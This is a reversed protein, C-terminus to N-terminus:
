ARRPDAGDDGSRVRSCASRAVRPGPEMIPGRPCRVHKRNAAGIRSTVGVVAPQVAVVGEREGVVVVGRVHAKARETDEVLIAHLRAAAEARVAMTVHLNDRVHEIARELVAVRHAVARHDSGAVHLAHRRAGANAVALEVRRLGFRHVEELDPDEGLARAKCRAVLLLVEGGVISSASQTGDRATVAAVPADGHMCIDRDMGAQEVLALRRAERQSGAPVRPDVDRAARDRRLALRQVFAIRHRQGVHRLDRDRADIAALDQHEVEGSRAIFHQEIWSDRASRCRRWRTRREDARAVRQRRIAGAVQAVPEGLAEGEHVFFSLGCQRPYGDLPAEDFLQAHRFVGDGVQVGFPVGLLVSGREEKRGSELECAASVSVRAGPAPVEGLRVVYEVVLSSERGDAGAEETQARRVEVTTGGSPAAGSIEPVCAAWPSAKGDWCVTGIPAGRTTMDDNSMGVHLECRAPPLPLAFRDFLRLEDGRDFEEGPKFGFPKLVSTSDVLVDGDVECRAVIGVTQGPLEADYTIPLSIQMEHDSSGRSRPNRIAVAGVQVGADTRPGSAVAETTRIEIPWVIPRPADRDTTTGDGLQGHDNRGWCSVQGAETRACAFRIGTAAEVADDIGAIRQPTTAVGPGHDDSEPDGWWHVHGETDVAITRTFHAAVHRIKGLGQPTTPTNSRATRGDGLQGASNEGACVLEGSAKAGCVHWLGATLAVVDVLPTDVPTKSPPLDFIRTATGRALVPGTSRTALQGEMAIATVGELSAVVEAGKPGIWCAVTGGERVACGGTENDGVTITVADDLGAIVRTGDFDHCAVKGGVLLACTNGGAGASIFTAIGGFDIRQPRTHAAEFTLEGWCWVEGAKTRLCAHDWGTVVQVISSSPDLPVSDASSGDDFLRGKLEDIWGCAFPAALMLSALTSRAPNM